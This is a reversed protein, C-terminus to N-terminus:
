AGERKECLPSFCGGLKGTKRDMHHSIGAVDHVFTFDDAGLLKSLDL